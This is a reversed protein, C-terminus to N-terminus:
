VKSVLRCDWRRSVGRVKLDVYVNQSVQRTGSLYPINSRARLNPLYPDNRSTKM